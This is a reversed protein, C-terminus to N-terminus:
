QIKMPTSAFPSLLFTQVDPTSLYTHLIDQQKKITHKNPTIQQNLRAVWAFSALRHTSTFKSCLSSSNKVLPAFKQPHPPNPFNYLIKFAAPFQLYPHLFDLKM